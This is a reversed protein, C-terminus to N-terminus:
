LGFRPSVVNVGLDIFSEILKCHFERKTDTRPTFQGVITDMRDSVHILSQDLRRKSTDAFSIPHLAGPSVDLNYFFEALDHIRMMAFFEKRTTEQLGNKVDEQFNQRVKRIGRVIEPCSPMRKCGPFHMSCDFNPDNWGYKGLLHPGTVSKFEEPHNDKVQKM